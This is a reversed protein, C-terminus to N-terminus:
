SKKETEAFVMGLMAFFIDPFFITYKLINDSYMFMIFTIFLILVSSSVLFRYQDKLQRFTRYKRYTVLFSGAFGFLLLVLGVYGYNYRVSLYDNHVENLDVFSQMVYYDARPGNGWVPSDRLGKEFYQYFAGRGSTNMRTDASYYNISIDSLRGRGEFFTKEQFAASNFVVIFVLASILGAFLKSVIKVNAFHLLLIVVFVLMAMRTMNLFPVLFFVGFLFLYKIKNTVFYVGLVLAAPIALFIVSTAWHAQPFDPVTHGAIIMLFIGFSVIMLRKFLWHYEEKGYTFGSAVVGVFIPLVYQLSLQLGLFSMHFLLYGFIYLLWPLWFIIPFNNRPNNIYYFLSVSLMLMWSWGTMNFGAFSDPVFPLLVPVYPLLLTFFLWNYFSYVDHKKM